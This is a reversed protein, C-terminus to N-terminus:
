TGRLLVLMAEEINEADKKKLERGLQGGGSQDLAQTTNKIGRDLEM